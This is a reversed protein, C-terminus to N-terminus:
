YRAGENHTPNVHLPFFPSFVFMAPTFFLYLLFMFSPFFLFEGSRVKALCHVMDGCPGLDM